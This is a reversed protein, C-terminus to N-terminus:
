PVVRTDKSSFTFLLNYIPQTSKNFSECSYLMFDEELELWTCHLQILKIDILITTVCEPLISVTVCQHPSLLSWGCRGKLTGLGSEERIGRVNEYKDNYHVM